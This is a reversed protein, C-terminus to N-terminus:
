SRIRVSMLLCAIRKMMHRELAPGIPKDGAAVLVRLDSDGMALPLREALM